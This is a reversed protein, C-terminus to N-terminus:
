SWLAQQIAKAAEKRAPAMLHGYVDKTVRISSHGLTESVVELPVGMALLLSACSHRLEHTTWHGLGASAALKAVRNKFNDPDVPTGFPTTFVLDKDGKWEPGALLRESSQRARHARLADVVPAPVHLTRRSRATKVDSLGLGARMRLLQQRVTLTPDDAELNLDSWRLGLVEGRRLGLALAILYAAELRDGAAEALM